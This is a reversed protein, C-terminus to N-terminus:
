AVIIDVHFPSRLRNWSKNRNEVWGFIRRSPWSWINHSVLCKLADVSIMFIVYKQRWPGNGRQTRDHAGNLGSNHATRLCECGCQHGCVQCYMRNRSYGYWNRWGCFIRRQFHLWLISEILLVDYNYYSHMIYYFLSNEAIYILIIFFYVLTISKLKCLM